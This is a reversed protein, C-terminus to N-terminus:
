QGERNATAVGAPVGVRAAARTSSGATGTLALFVDDLSPRTATVRTVPIGAVHLRDLVRRLHEAGGDSPLDTTLPDPGPIAGGDALLHMASAAAGQDPHALVLREGGHQAKLEDPTGEAVVRGQDMLLIRDALRDAEELYQTTLVVTTGGRVLDGVATWMTSRSVPDLGTTPEDLFLVAPPVVLSMALDLRRRMGGSWTQAQRDAAAELGFRELLEAARRRAGDRGLHRLRGIMELNERGTQRDDVAAFQGTLGILGRVVVPERVVDHGGIRASGGDPRTLTGLIRVATTKGAGNPGLLALVSGAPVGFSVADLVRRRGYTKGLGDVEVIV